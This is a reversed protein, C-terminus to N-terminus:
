FLESQAARALETPESCQRDDNGVDNVWTSVPHRRMRRADYPKLMESTAALDQLGPDLWLDYSETPLNSADPGHVDALSAAVTERVHEVDAPTVSGITARHIDPSLRVTRCNYHEVYPSGEYVADPFEEWLKKGLLERGGSSYTKQVAENLYSICWNRDVAVISDRTVSLFQGLRAAVAALERKTLVADTTNMYPDYIGAVKGNEFIPIASKWAGRNARM